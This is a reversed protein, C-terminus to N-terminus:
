SLSSVQMVPERSAEPTALAGLIWPADRRRTVVLVPRDGDQCEIVLGDYEYSKHWDTPDDPGLGRVHRMTLTEPLTRRAFHGTPDPTAAPRGDGIVVHDCGHGSYPVDGHVSARVCRRETAPLAVIDSTDAARVARRRSWWAYLAALGVAPPIGAATIMFADRVSGGLMGGLSGVCSLLAGAVLGVTSVWPVTRAASPRRHRYAWGTLLMALGFPLALLGFATPLRWDDAPSAHTEQAAAGFRVTRIEGRWYTLTVEDGTRVADYVPRSGAMRVRRETDSGRETVLLWHRVSKGRPEGETGEVTAPVTVTCADPRTGGACAPAAAYARADALAGPVTAFLGASLLVCLLGVVTAPLWERTRRARSLRDAM